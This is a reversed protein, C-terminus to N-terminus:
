GGEAVTDHTFLAPTSCKNQTQKPASSAAIISSTVM